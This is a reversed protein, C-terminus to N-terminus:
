RSSRGRSQVRGPRSSPAGVSEPPTGGSVRGGARNDSALLPPTSGFDAAALRPLMVELTGGRIVFLCADGCVSVRWHRAAGAAEFNVGLFAAHAGRALKEKLYWPTPEPLSPRLRWRRRARELWGFREDAPPKSVVFEAVLMRAWDGSFLSESAGDAIAFRQTIPDLAFADESEADTKGAAPLTFGVASLEASM